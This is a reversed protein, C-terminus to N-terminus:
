GGLQGLVGRIEPQAPDIELSRRFARAAAAPDELCLSSLGIGNLALPDLRALPDDPALRAATEFDARADRCERREFRLQGRALWLKPAGPGGLDGALARDLLSLRRDPEALRVRALVREAGGP